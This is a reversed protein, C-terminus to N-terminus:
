IIDAFQGWQLLTFIFILITACTEIKVGGENIPIVNSSPKFYFPMEARNSMRWALKSCLTFLFGSKFHINGQLSNIWCCCRQVPFIMALFKKQRLHSFIWEDSAPMNKQKAARGISVGWRFMILFCKKVRRVFTSYRKSSFFIVAQNNLKDTASKKLLHTRVVLVYKCSVEKESTKLSSFHPFFHKWAFKIEAVSTLNEEWSTKSGWRPDVRYRPSPHPFEKLPWVYESYFNRPHFQLTSVAPIPFILIPNPSWNKPITQPDLVRHFRSSPIGGSSTSGSEPPKQLKGLNFFHFFIATSFHGKRPM